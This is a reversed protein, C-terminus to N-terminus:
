AGSEMHMCMSADTYWHVDGTSLCYLAAYERERHKNARQTAEVCGEGESPGIDYRVPVMRPELVVTAFLMRIAHLGDPTCVPWGLQPNSVAVLEKARQPISLETPLGLM